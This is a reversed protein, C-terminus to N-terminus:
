GGPSPNNKSADGYGANANKENPSLNVQNPMQLFKELGGTPRLEVVGSMSYRKDNKFDGDRPRTDTANPNYSEHGGGTEGKRRWKLDGKDLGEKQQSNNPDFGSSRGSSDVIEYEGPNQQMQGYLKERNMQKRREDAPGGPIIQIGTGKGNGLGAEEREVRDKGTKAPDPGELLQKMLQKAQNRTLNLGLGKMASQFATIRNAQDARSGGGSYQRAREKLYGWLAESYREGLLEPVADPSAGALDKAVDPMNRMAWNRIMGNLAPNGGSAAIQGVIDNMAMNEPFASAIEQAERGAVAGNVGMDILTNKSTNVVDKMQEFSMSGSRSLSKTTYNESTLSEVSQGGEVVSKKYQGFSEGISMNMSRLNEKVFDLVTDFEKGTYGESLAGQIIKRSQETTIFPNMAMVRAQMEYGLGERMGGGRISGANDWKQVFQGGSQVLQNALLALGAVGGAGAVGKLGGLADGMGGIGSPLGRSMGGKFENFLQRGLGLPATRGGGSAGGGGRGVGGTGNTRPHEEDGGAGGWFSMDDDEQVTPQTRTDQYKEQRAQKQKQYMKDSIADLDQPKLPQDTDETESRRLPPKPMDGPQEDSSKRSARKSGTRTSDMGPFEEGSTYSRQANMNMWLRPDRIRLDDMYSDFDAPSRGLGAAMGFFPDNYGHPALNRAGGTTGRIDQETSSLREAQSIYSRLSQNSRETISPLEELYENFSAQSRTIAELSTRLLDTQQAIQHISESSGAPIDISLRAMVTDETYEFNSGPSSM